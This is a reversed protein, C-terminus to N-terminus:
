FAFIINVNRVLIEIYWM